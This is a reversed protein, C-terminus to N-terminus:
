GPAALVDCTLTSTEIQLEETKIPRRPDLFNLKFLHRWSLALTSKEDGCHVLLHSRWCFYYFKYQLFFPQRPPLFIYRMRCWKMLSMCSCLKGASPIHKAASHFTGGPSHEWPIFSLKDNHRSCNYRRYNKTINDLQTIQFVLYLHM